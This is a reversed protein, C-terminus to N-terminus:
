VWSPSMELFNFMCPHSMQSEPSKLGAPHSRLSNSSPPNLNIYMQIQILNTLTRSIDLQPLIEMFELCSPHNIVLLKLGSASSPNEILLRCSLTWVGLSLYLLQKISFMGGPQALDMADSDNFSFMECCDHSVEGKKYVIARCYIILNDM